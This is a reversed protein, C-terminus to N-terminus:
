RRDTVEPHFLSFLFSATTNVGPIAVRQIKETEPRKILLPGVGFGLASGANLLQYDVSCDHFARVSVKTIDLASALALRNLAEVDDIVPEFRLKGTPIRGNVLADFIFTDNPCPSFGITLSITGDDHIRM